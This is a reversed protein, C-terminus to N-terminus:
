LKEQLEPKHYCILILNLISHVPATSLCRSPLLSSEQIVCQSNYWVTFVSVLSYGKKPHDTPFKLASCRCITDQHDLATQSPYCNDNLGSIHSPLETWAAASWIYYLIIICSQQSFKFKRIETIKVSVIKKFLVM